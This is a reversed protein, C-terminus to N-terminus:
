IIDLLVRDGKRLIKIIEYLFLNVNKAHTKQALLIFDSRIDRDPNLLLCNSIVVAAFNNERDKM